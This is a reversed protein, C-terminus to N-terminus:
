TVRQQLNGVANGVASVVPPSSAIKEIEGHLCKNLMETTLKPKCSTKPKM